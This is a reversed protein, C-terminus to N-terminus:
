LAVRGAFLQQRELSIKLCRKTPVARQLRFEIDSLVPEVDEPTSEVCRPSTSPPGADNPSNLRSRSLAFGGYGAGTEAPNM